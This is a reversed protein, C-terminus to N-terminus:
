EENFDEEAIKEFINGVEIAAKGFTKLLEAFKRTMDEDYEEKDKDKDENENEQENDENIEEKKTIKKGNIVMTTCDAEGTKQKITNIQITEPRLKTMNFVMAEKDLIDVIVCTDGEKTKVINGIEYKKM